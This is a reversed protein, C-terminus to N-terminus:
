LLQFHNVVLKNSLELFGGKPWTILAENGAVHFGFLTKNYRLGNAIAACDQWKGDKEM